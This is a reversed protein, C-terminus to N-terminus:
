YQELFYALLDKSSLLGVLHGGETVPLAHFAVKSLVQTAERVSSHADVCVPDPQMLEAITRTHDLVQDTQREDTQVEYSARLIDTSSLIGVLKKGDVIPVHHFHGDTMAKRAESIRQGLQIAIPDPTMIKSVPQNRKM